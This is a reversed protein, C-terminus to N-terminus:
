MPEFSVQIKSIVDTKLHYFEGKEHLMELMKNEYPITM